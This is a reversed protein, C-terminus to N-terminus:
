EHHNMVAPFRLDDDSLDLVAAVQLFGVKVVEQAYPIPEKATSEVAVREERRESLFQSTALAIQKPTSALVGGPGV